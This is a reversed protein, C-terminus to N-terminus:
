SRLLSTIWLWSQWNTQSVRHQFPEVCFLAPPTAWATSQWGLFHSVRLEFGLAVFFFFFCSSLSGQRPGLYNPGSFPYRYLRHMFLLSLDVPSDMGAIHVSLLTQVRYLICSVGPVVVLLATSINSSCLEEFFLSGHTPFPM